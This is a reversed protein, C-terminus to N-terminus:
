RISSKGFWYIERGMLVKTGFSVRKAGLLVGNFADLTELVISGLHFSKLVRAGKKKLNCGLAGALLADAGRSRAVGKGSVTEIKRYKKICRGGVAQIM